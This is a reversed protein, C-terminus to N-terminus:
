RFDDNLASSAHWSGEMLICRAHYHVVRSKLLTSSLKIKHREVSQLKPHRTWVFTAAENETVTTNPIQSSIDRTSQPGATQVSHEQQFWSCQRAVRWTAFQARHQSTVLRVAAATEKLSRVTKIVLRLILYKTNWVSLGAPMPQIDM